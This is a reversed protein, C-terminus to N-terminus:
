SICTNLNACQKTNQKAAGNNKNYEFLNRVSNHKRHLLWVILMGFVFNSAIGEIIHSLRVSALPMLSNELMLGSLQPVTFFLGVLIATKWVNVKSGLIVPITCLTWLMARLIQFPFLGQDTKLTNITHEWFPLIAGTNGYFTRLEPNQWAIFYGACWYLVVYAGAIFVLKLILQKAPMKLALSSSVNTVTKGKGLILVALPIHVFAIPLGMIFLQPLIKLDVTINFMFYLTEIQTLFTVAGYYAFALSVALKWGNWRSSLILGVVLLTNIIGFLLFGSNGPVLGPESEIEPLIGSIAITGLIFLIYFLILLLTLRGTWNLIQKAKM